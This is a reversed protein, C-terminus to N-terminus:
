NAKTEFRSAAEAKYAQNNLELFKKFSEQATNFQVKNGDIDLEQRRYRRMESKFKKEFGDPVEVNHKKM